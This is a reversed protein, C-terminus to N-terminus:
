PKSAWDKDVDLKWRKGWHRKDTADLCSPYLKVTGKYGQKKLTRAIESYTVCLSASEGEHLKRPFRKFDDVGVFTLFKGNPARLTPAKVYVPRSGRNVVDISAMQTSIEGDAYAFFAASIKLELHRWERWITRVWIAISLVLGAVGIYDKAELGLM